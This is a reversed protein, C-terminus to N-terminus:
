DCLSQYLSHVHVAKRKSVKVASSTAMPFPTRPSAESDWDSDGDMDQGGNKKEVAGHKNGHDSLDIDSVDSVDSIGLETMVGSTPCLDDYLLVQRSLCCFNARFM